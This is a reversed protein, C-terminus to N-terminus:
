NTNREMSEKGNSVGKHEKRKLIETPVVICHGFKGTGDAGGGGINHEFEVFCNKGNCCPKLIICDEGELNRGKFKYKQNVLTHEQKRRKGKQDTPKFYDFLMKSDVYFNDSGIKRAGNELVVLAVDHFHPGTAILNSIKVFGGNDCIKRDQSWKTGLLIDGKTVIRGSINIENNTFM